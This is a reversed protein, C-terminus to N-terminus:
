RQWTRILAEELRREFTTDETNFLDEDRPALNVVLQNFRVDPAQEWLQKVKTLIRDIRKPDRVPIESTQHWERDGDWHSGYHYPGVICFHSPLDPRVMGCHLRQDFIYSGGRPNTFTRSM